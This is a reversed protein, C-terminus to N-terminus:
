TRLSHILCQLSKATVSAFVRADLAHLRADDRLSASNLMESRIGELEVHVAHITDLSDAHQPNVADARAELELYMRRCTRYNM